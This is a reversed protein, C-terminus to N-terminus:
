TEPCFSFLAFVAAVFLKKETHKCSLGSTVPPSALGLPGFHKLQLWIPWMAALYGSGYFFGRQEIQEFTPCSALYQLTFTDDTAWTSAAFVLSYGGM